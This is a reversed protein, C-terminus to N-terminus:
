DWLGGMSQWAGDTFVFICMNNNLSGFTFPDILISQYVAGNVRANSVIISFQSPTVSTKQVLYLVQGEVGDALTYDGPNLKVISKTLDIEATLVDTTSYILQGQAPDGLATFALVNNTEQVTVTIDTM